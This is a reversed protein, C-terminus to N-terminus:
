RDQFSSPRRCRRCRPGPSHPSVLRSQRLDQRSFEFLGASRAARTTETIAANLPHDAPLGIVRHRAEQNRENGGRGPDDSPCRLRSVDLAGVAAVGHGGDLHPRDALKQSPLAEGERPVGRDVSDWLRADTLTTQLESHPRETGYHTDEAGYPLDERNLRLQEGLSPM